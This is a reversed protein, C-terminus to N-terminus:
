RGASALSDFGAIEGNAEMDEVESFEQKDFLVNPSSENIEQKEEEEPRDEELTSSAEKGVVASLESGLGALDLRYCCRTSYFQNVKGVVSYGWKLSLTVM